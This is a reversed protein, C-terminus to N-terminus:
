RRQGGTEQGPMRKEEAKIEEWLRDMEDLDSQTPTRGDEALRAEIGAFRREFKANTARLATEPDIKLHRAANAIVFLLDGLEEEIDARSAAESDQAKLARIAEELEGAEERIKAFVPTLDPWDFGVRAARRQLKVARSLAPLALPIDALVGAESSQADGDAQREAKEEAKIKEWFGPAAGAAREEQTGFVHPHRRVMKECIGTVVDAFDFQEAESAMQAHYVVQLLLDGLEQRLDDMDGREIADAIEYAEEITYPAITRFTQAIDWPCGSGPTRLDRMIELLFDIRLDSTRAKESTSDRTM